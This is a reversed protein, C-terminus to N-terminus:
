HYDRRRSRECRHRPPGSIRHQPLLRASEAISTEPTVSIVPRTMIDFAKM